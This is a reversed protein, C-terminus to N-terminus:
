KYDGVGPLDAPRLLNLVAPHGESILATLTTLAYGHFEALGKASYRATVDHTVRIIDDMPRMRESSFASGPIDVRTLRTLTAEYRKRDKNHSSTLAVLLHGHEVDEIVREARMTRENRPSVATFTVAPRTDTTTSM